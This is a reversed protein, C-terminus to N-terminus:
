IQRIKDNSFAPLSSFVDLAYFRAAVGNRCRGGGNFYVAANM